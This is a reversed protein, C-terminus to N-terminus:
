YAGTKGNVWSETSTIQGTTLNAGFRMILSYIRGNFPFNGNSRKGLNLAGAIFNGAGQSASSTAAQVGNIRLTSVPAAIDAIHTQVVTQPAPYTASTIINVGSSWAEWYPGPTSGDFGPLSSLTGTTTTTSTEYMVQTTADSLKRVGAFVQAKDIGPTITGTVMGDDVGDFALYGASQVDVQTVEYQSVVKQYATVAPQQEIQAGWMYFGYGATGTTVGVTLSLSPSVIHFLLNAGSSPTTFTATCRRWGNGVDTNTLTATGLTVQNAGTTLDFSAIVGSASFNVSIFSREAAKFYGSWTYPASFLFGQPNTGIAFFAVTVATEQVKDATTTGNPADVVDDAVTTSTKSWYANDFQETYTLLNRTGTIPNIGYTPRQGATAQTAHNGPLLKVSVSDLIFSSNNQIATPTVWTTTATAIFYASLTDINLNGFGGDSIGVRIRPSGGSQSIVNLKVLYTKGVVTTFSQTIGGDGTGVDSITVTGNGNNVVTGGYGTAISWGTLGGSFDGNTVLEPGLVLGQSKDLMKGVPQNPATVPTTGASDQFLTTLDSPDYWVGPESAAFLSAPSASTGGRVLNM